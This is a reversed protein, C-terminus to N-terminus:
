GGQVVGLHLLLACLLYCFGFGDFVVMRLWLLRGGRHLLLSLGHHDVLLLFHDLLATGLFPAFVHFLDCVVLLGLLGLVLSNVHLLDDLSSPLRHLILLLLLILERVLDIPVRVLILLLSLLWLVLVKFVVQDDVLRQLVVVEIHLILAQLLFVFLHLLVQCFLLLFLHHLFQDLLLFDFPDNIVFSDGRVEITDELLLPVVGEQVFETLLELGRSGGGGLVDRFIILLHLFRPLFARLLLFGLLLRLFFPGPLDRRVHFLDLGFLLLGHLAHFLGLFLFLEVIIPITILSLLLRLFSLWHLLLLHLLNHLLLFLRLNDL